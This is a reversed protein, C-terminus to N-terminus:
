DDEGGEVDEGIEEEDGKGEGVKEANFTRQHLLEAKDGEEGDTEGDYGDGEGAEDEIYGDELASACGAVDGVRLNEKRRNYRVSSSDIPQYM